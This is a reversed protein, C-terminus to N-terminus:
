FLHKETKNLIFTERKWKFYINRPKMQKKNKNLINRTEMKFLHKENENTVNIEQKWKFYINRTKM